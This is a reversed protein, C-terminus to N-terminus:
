VFTTYYYYFYAWKLGTMHDLSRQLSGLPIKSLAGASIRNQQQMKAKFESMYHYYNQHNEQSDVIKSEM